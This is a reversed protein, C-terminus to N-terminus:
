KSLRVMDTTDSGCSAARRCFLQMVPRPQRSDGCGYPNGCAVEGLVRGSRAFGATWGIHDPKTRASGVNNRTLFTEPM